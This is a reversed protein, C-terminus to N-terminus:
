GTADNALWDGPVINYADYYQELNGTGPNYVPASIYGIGNLNGRILYENPGLNNLTGVLSAPLQIDGSGPVFYHMNIDLSKPPPLYAM